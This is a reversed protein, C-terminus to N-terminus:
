EYPCGAIDYLKRMYADDMIHTATGVVELNKCGRVDLSMLKQPLVIKKMNSYMMSLVLLHEPLQEPLELNICQSCKIMRLTKPLPPLVKITECGDCWLEELNPPLEPISVLEICNACYLKKIKPPLKPLYKLKKLGCCDFNTITDPLDPIKEILSCGSCYFVQLNNPLVSPIESINPCGTFLLIKLTPPLSNPISTILSCGSCNLTHLNIPLQEPLKKLKVCEICSLSQLSVPLPPIYTLEKCCSINLEYLNLCEHLNEPLKSINTESCNIRQITTPLLKPLFTIQQNGSCDIYKDCFIRFKEENKIKPFYRINPCWLSNLEQFKKPFQYPIYLINTCGSCDIDEMNVPLTEPIFTLNVCNACFLKQLNKPLKDELKEVIIKINVCNNICLIRLSNPLIPLTDIVCFSCDFKQLNEPLLPIYKLNVCKSCIFTELCIPLYPIIELKVCNTINLEQLYTMDVLRESIAQIGVNNLFIRKLNINSYIEDPLYTLNPCNICAFEKITKPLNKPLESFQCNNFHLCEVTLMEPLTDIKNCCVLRKTNNIEQIAYNLNDDSVYFQEALDYIQENSQDIFLINVLKHFNIIDEEKNGKMEKVFFDKILKFVNNNSDYRTFLQKITQIKNIYDMISLECILCM